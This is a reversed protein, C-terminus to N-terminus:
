PEGVRIHEVPHLAKQIYFFTKDISEYEGDPTPRLAPAMAIFGDQDILYYAPLSTVKYDKLLHEDEGVYIIDWDLDPNEEKFRIFETSDKDTCVSLFDIDEQYKERLGKIIKMETVAKPDWTNFFNFYVFKGQYRGWNINEGISDKLAIQPAPYGPELRILYDVLNNSITANIEYKAHNSVSDLMWLVHRKRDRGLDDYYNYYAKGLKEIMVMERIDPRSLFLDSKLTKMLMTPSAMTLSSDIMKRIDPSYYSFDQHYFAKFFNMYQDNEYYLPFPEIYNLFIQLRGESGGLGGYTQEMEAINYRVYTLFYTDKVDKYADAVHVKFTDLYPLFQGRAIEREHFAIFTEFGHHYALILSNIDLSDLGYFIIDSRQNQFSVPGEPKPYYVQYSSEPGLYLYAETKEIEIVGKITSKNHLPIKFLSDEPNVTAEGIKIKNMTIYDQYTYLSVEKGIFDPAFGTIYREEQALIPLAIFLMLITSLFGRM